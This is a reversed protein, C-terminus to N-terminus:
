QLGQSSGSGLKVRSPEALGLGLGLWPGAKSGIRAKCMVVTQSQTLPKALSNDCFKFIAISLRDDIMLADHMM